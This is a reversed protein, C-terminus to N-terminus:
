EHVVSFQWNATVEEPCSEMLKEYAHVFAVAYMDHLELVYGADNKGLAIYPEEEMFPFTELLKAAVPSLANEYEERDLNGKLERSYGAFWDWFVTIKEEAVPIAFFLPDTGALIQDTSEKVSEYAAPAHNKLTALSAEVQASDGRIAYLVAEIASRGPADAYLSRSTVLATEAEEYRHMMTLCSALNAYASGLLLHDRQDLGTGTFCDIASRYNEEARSYLHGDLYFKAVKMYPLYFRHGYENAYTYMEVMQEQKGSLECYLGMFFLCAAKDADTEIFKQLQQLKPVAQEPNRNALHNLAATLHIKAQYNEVFAPELIPGFAQMHTDWSKQFNASEFSKKALKDALTLKKM